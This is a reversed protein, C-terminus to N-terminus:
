KRITNEIEKTVKELVENTLVFLNFGTAESVARNGNFVVLAKLEYRKTKGKEITKLELKIEEYESFRKIKQAYNGVLKKIVIMEQNDIEFNSLVINGGLTYDAM